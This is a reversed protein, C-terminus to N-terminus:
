LVDSLFSSGCKLSKAQKLSLSLQICHPKYVLYTLLYTLTNICPVCFCCDCHVVTESLRKWQRKFAWLSNVPHYNDCPRDSSAEQFAADLSWLRDTPMWLRGTPLLAGFCSGATRVCVIHSLLMVCHLMTQDTSQVSVNSGVIVVLSTALLAEHTALVGHWEWARMLTTDRWCLYTVLYTLTNKHRLFISHWLAGLYASQLLKIRTPGRLEVLSRRGCVCVMANHLKSDATLAM